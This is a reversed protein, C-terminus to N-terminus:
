FTKYVKFVRRETNKNNEWIRKRWPTSIAAKFEEAEFLDPSIRSYEHVALFKAPKKYESVEKSTGTVGTEVLTYRRSRLWGPVKSLMDTHEENYWRHLEEEFEPEVDMSVIILTMGEKHGTFNPSVAKPAEENLKYIRRQLVGVKSLVDAERASRTKALNAYEDKELYEVSSLDYLAAWTPKQDDAQIARTASHFGPLATRLPIHEHDYWDHFEAESVQNGVEAFVLLLGKSSM